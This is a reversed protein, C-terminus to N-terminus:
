RAGVMAADGPESGWERFVKCGCREVRCHFCKGRVHRHAHLAHTCCCPTREITEIERELEAIRALLPPKPAM